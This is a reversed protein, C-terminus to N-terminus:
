VEQAEAQPADRGDRQGIRYGLAFAHVVQGTRKDPAPGSEAEVRQEIQLTEAYELLVDQREEDLQAFSGRLDQLLLDRDATDQRDDHTAETVTSGKRVHPTEAM